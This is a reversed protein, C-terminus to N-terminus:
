GCEHIPILGHFLYCGENDLFWDVGYSSLFEFCGCDM